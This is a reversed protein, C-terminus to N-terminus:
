GHDRSPDGRLLPRQTAQEKQVTASYAATERPPQSAAPALWNPIELSEQVGPGSEILLGVLHCAAAKAKGLDTSTRM